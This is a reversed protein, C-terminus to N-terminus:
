AHWEGLGAYDFSKKFRVSCQVVDDGAVGGAMLDSRHQAVDIVDIEAQYDDPLPSGHGIDKKQM